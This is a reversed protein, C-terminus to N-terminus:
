SRSRATWCGTSSTVAEQTMAARRAEDDRNRREEEIDAGACFASGSGALLVARVSGDAAVDGWFRAVERHLVANMVAAEPLRARLLGPAPRDLSLQEYRATWGVIASTVPPLAFPFGNPGM